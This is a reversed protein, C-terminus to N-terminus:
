LTTSAQMERRAAQYRSATTCRSSDLEFVKELRHEHSFRERNAPIIPPFSLSVGPQCGSCSAVTVVNIRWDHCTEVCQSRSCSWGRSVSVYGLPQPVATLRREINTACHAWPWTSFAEISCSSSLVYPVLRHPQRLSLILQVDDDLSDSRHRPEAHVAWAAHVIRDLTPAM